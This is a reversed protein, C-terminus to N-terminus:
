NLKLYDFLWSTFVEGGRENLLYANQFCTHDVSIEHELCNLIRTHPINTMELYDFIYQRRMKKRLKSALEITIPPIVIYTNYGKSICFDYISNLIKSSELRSNSNSMSLEDELNSIKFEKKWAEVWFMANQNWDFSKHKKIPSTLCRKLGNLLEVAPYFKYPNRQLLDIRNQTYSSYHPIYNYPLFSYYKDGVPYSMGALSSFPCIPIFVTAGNAFKTHYFKLLNLDMLPPQPGMAFNFTKKSSFNYNFAWKGSNSGFNVIELNDPVERWFKQCDKLEGDNFWRTKKIINNINEKLKMLLLSFYNILM